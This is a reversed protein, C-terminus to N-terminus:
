KINSVYRILSYGFWLNWFFYWFIIIIYKSQSPLYLTWVSFPTILQVSDQLVLCTFSNWTFSIVYTLNLRKFFHQMNPFLLEIWSKPTILHSPVLQYLLSTLSYPGSWSDYVMITCILYCQFHIRVCCIRMLYVRIYM